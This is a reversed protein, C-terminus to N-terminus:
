RAAFRSSGAMFLADQVFCGAWFPLSTYPLGHRVLVFSAALRAAPFASEAFYANNTISSPISGLNAKVVAAPLRGSSLHSPCANEGSTCLGLFVPLRGHTRPQPHRRFPHSSKRGGCSLKHSFKAAYSCQSSFRAQEYMTFSKTRVSLLCSRIPSRSTCAKSCSACIM